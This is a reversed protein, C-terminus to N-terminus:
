SGHQKQWLEAEFRRTESQGLNPLNSRGASHLIETTQIFKKKSLAIELATLGEANKKRYDAGYSILLRVMEPYGREAAVHLPTTGGIVFNPSTGMVLMRHLLVQDGRAIADLMADREDVVRGSSLQIGTPLFKAFRNLLAITILAILSVLLVPQSVGLGDALEQPLNAGIALIGIVLLLFIQLYRFMAVVIMGGLGILLVRKDIMNGSLSDPLNALLSMAAAALLILVEGSKFQINM